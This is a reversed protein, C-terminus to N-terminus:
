TNKDKLRAETLLQVREAYEGATMFQNYNADHKILVRDDDTLGVWTRQPPTTYLDYTGDLLERAADTMQILKGVGIHTSLRGVPEDKAELPEYDLGLERANEAKRELAEEKTM